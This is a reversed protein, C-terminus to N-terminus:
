HGAFACLTYLPLGAQALRRAGGLEPLDVIAAGEVVEAGLRRLLALGAAMTGGTAILDDVLLVREGPRCADEHIQVTATGYELAYEQEVTRWPLKGKKRVPIFGAGLALALAPALIFGRAELGAVRAIGADRYREAFAGIIAAFLAADGLLPTIDRFQVGPEPWDPVTRTAARLRAALRGRTEPSAVRCRPDPAVAPTDTM